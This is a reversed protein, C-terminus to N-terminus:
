GKHGDVGAFDAMFIAQGIVRIGVSESTIVLQFHAVIHVRKLTVRICVQFGRAAIVLSVHCTLCRQPGTKHQWVLLAFCRRHSILRM